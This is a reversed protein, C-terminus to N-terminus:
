GTFMLVENASGYGSLITYNDASNFSALSTVPATKDVSYREAWNEGILDFREVVGNGTGVVLVPGLPGEQGSVTNRAGFHDGRFKGHLLPLLTWVTVDNDSRKYVRITGRDSGTTPAGVAVYKSSLFTVSSGFYPEELLTQEFIKLWLSGDWHFISFSSLGPEGAVIFDGDRTIDVDTGFRGNEERGLLKEDGSMPLAEYVGEVIGMAFTYIRGSMPGQTDHDPAGVVVRLNESVAISSGFREPTSSISPNGVLDAGQQEWKSEVQDFMFFTALGENNASGEPAGVLMFATPSNNPKIIALAAGFASDESGVVDPLFNWMSGVKYMSNVLGTKLLPAGIALWDADMAVTTGSSNQGNITQNLVLPLEGPTPVATGSTPGSPEPSALNPNDPDADKSLYVFVYTWTAGILLLCIGALLVIPTLRRSRKEPKNETEILAADGGLSKHCEDDDSEHQVDVQYASVCVTAVVFKRNSRVKEEEDPSYEDIYEEIDKEESKESCRSLLQSSASKQPRNSPGTDSPVSRHQGSLSSSSMSEQLGVYASPPPTRDPPSRRQRRPPIWRRPSSDYPGFGASEVSQVSCDSRSDLLTNVGNKGIEKEVYISQPGFTFESDEDPGNKRYIFAELNGQQGSM